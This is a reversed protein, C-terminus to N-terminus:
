LGFQRLHHDAHLYAWRMWDSENMAGFIPHAAYSYDMPRRMFRQHLVLLNRLDADFIQPRTGGCQPDMEPRTPVGHPWKLPVELAFWKVFGRPLFPAPQENRPAPPCPKEGMVMRYCDCLHCVMQHSTMSGWRRQSSAQITGLRAVIQRNDDPNSLTHRAM